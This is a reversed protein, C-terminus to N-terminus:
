ANNYLIASAAFNLGPSIVFSNNCIMFPFPHEPIAQERQGISCDDFSHKDM